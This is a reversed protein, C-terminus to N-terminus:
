SIGREDPLCSASGIGMVESCCSWHRSSPWCSRTSEIRDLLAAPLPCGVDDIDAASRM